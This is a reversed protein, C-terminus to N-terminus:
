KGTLWLRRLHAQTRRYSEVQARTMQPVVPLPSEPDLLDDVLLEMAEIRENLRHIHARQHGITNGLDHMKQWTRDQIETLIRQTDGLSARMTDFDQKTDAESHTTM